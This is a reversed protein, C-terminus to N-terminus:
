RGGFMVTPVICKPLYREGEIRWVWIQGDSQWITFHSEDSWLVHKWHDLTWHRRAKCWELRRKANHM